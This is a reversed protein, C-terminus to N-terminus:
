RPSGLRNALLSRSTWTQPTPPGIARRSPLFPAVASCVPGPLCSASGSFVGGNMGGLSRRMAPGACSQARGGPAAMGPVAGLSGGMHMGGACASMSLSAAARPPPPAAAIPMPGPQGASCLADGGRRPPPPQALLRPFPFARAAAEAMTDAFSALGCPTVPQQRASHHSRSRPYGSYGPPAAQSQPVPIHSHSACPAAPVPVSAISACCSGVGPPVSVSAVSACCSGVAASCSGVAHQGSMYNSAGAGDRSRPPPAAHSMWSGPLEPAPWPFRPGSPAASNRGGHGPVKSGPERQPQQCRRSPTPHQARQQQQQQEWFNRAMAGM